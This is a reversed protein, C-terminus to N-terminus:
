SGFGAGALPGGPALPSVYFSLQFTRTLQARARQPVLPLAPFGGTEQSQREENLLQGTPVLVSRSRPGHPHRPAGGAIVESPLAEEHM